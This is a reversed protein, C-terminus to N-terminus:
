ATAEWHVYLNGERPRVEIETVRRMTDDVENDHDLIEAIGYDQQAISFRLPNNLETM